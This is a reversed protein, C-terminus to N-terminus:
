GAAPPEDIGTIWGYITATWFGLGIAGIASYLGIVGNFLPRPELKPLVRTGQTTTYTVGRNGRYLLDLISDSLMFITSLICVTGVLFFTPIKKKPFVYFQECMAPMNHCLAMWFVWFLIAVHKAIQVNYEYEGLWTCTYIALLTTALLTMILALWVFTKSMWDREAYKKEPPPDAM